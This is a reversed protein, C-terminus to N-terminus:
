IWLFAAFFFIFYSNVFQMRNCKKKEHCHPYENVRLKFLIGTIQKVLYCVIYLSLKFFFVRPKRSNLHSTSNSMLNRTHVTYM